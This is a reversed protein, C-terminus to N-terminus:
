GTSKAKHSTTKQLLTDCIVVIEFSDKNHENNDSMQQLRNRHRGIHRCHLENIEYVQKMHGQEYENRTKKTLTNTFFTNESSIHCQEIHSNAKQQIGAQLELSNQQACKFRIRKMVAPILGLRICGPAQCGHQILLGAFKQDLM